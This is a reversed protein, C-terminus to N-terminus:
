KKNRNEYTDAIIRAAIEIENVPLPDVIINDIFLLDKDNLEEAAKIAWTPIPKQKKM